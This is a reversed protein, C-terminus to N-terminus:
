KKLNIGNTKQFRKKKEDIFKITSDIPSVSQKHILKIESAKKEIRIIHNTDSEFSHVVFLRYSEYELEEFRPEKWKKLTKLVREQVETTMAEALPKEIYVEGKYKECNTQCAQLMFILAASLILRM